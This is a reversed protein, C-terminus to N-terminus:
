EEEKDQLLMDDVDKEYSYMELEIPTPDDTIKKGFLHSFFVIIGISIGITYPLELYLKVAKHNKDINVMHAYTNFLRNLQTDMHFTIIATACGMFLISSVFFVKAYKLIVNEKKASFEILTITEGMNIIRCNNIKSKIIRVLDLSSVKTHSIKLDKIIEIDGINKGDDIVECIDKIYVNKKDTKFKKVPKIYIDM